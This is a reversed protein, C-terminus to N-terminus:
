PVRQSQTLASLLRTCPSLLLTGLRLWSKKFFLLSPHMLSLKAPKSTARASRFLFIAHVFLSVQFMPMDGGVQIESATWRSARFLKIQPRSSKGSATSIKHHSLFTVLFFTNAVSLQFSLTALPSSELAQPTWFRRDFYKSSCLATQSPISLTPGPLILLFCQFESNLLTKQRSSLPLYTRTLYSPHPTTNEVVPFLSLLFCFLKHTSTFTLPKHTPSHSCLQSTGTRPGLKKKLASSM